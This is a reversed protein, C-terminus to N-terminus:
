SSHGVLLVPGDIDNVVSAIYAVDGALSRLPNAPALVPLGRAAAGSHPADLQRNSSSAAPFGSARMSSARASPGSRELDDAPFEILDVPM